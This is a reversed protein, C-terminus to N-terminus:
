EINIKGFLSYKTIKHKRYMPSIKKQIMKLLDSLLICIVGILIVALFFAWWIPFIIVGFWYEAITLDLLNSGDSLGFITMIKYHWSNKRIKMNDKRTRKRGVSSGIKTLRYQQTRQIDPVFRHAPIGNHYNSVAM